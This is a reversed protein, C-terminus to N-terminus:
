APVVRYEAGRWVPDDYPGRGNRADGIEQRARGESPWPLFRRGLRRNVGGERTWPLGGARTEVFCPRNPGSNSNSNEDM